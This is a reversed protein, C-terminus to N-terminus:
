HTLLILKDNELDVNFINYYHQLEILKNEYIRSCHIFFILFIDFDYNLKYFLISDVKVFNTSAYLYTTRATKSM